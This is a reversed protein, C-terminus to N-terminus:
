KYYNLYILPRKNVITPIIYNYFFTYIMSAWSMKVRPGSQPKFNKELALLLLFKKFILNSNSIQCSKQNVIM